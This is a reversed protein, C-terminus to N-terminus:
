KKGIAERWKQIFALRKDQQLNDLLALSVPIPRLADGLQKKLTGLSNGEVDERVSALGAKDAMVTQGRKSLLYDLWVKSANPHAAKESIFSIRSIVKTYDTPIAIGISPDKKARDDAYSGIINYGILNEGSSVREMMTGTSTQLVLGGKAIEALDKFYNPDDQDDAVALMFGVGSKEVDYTTVKSRFRDADGSILKALEGHTHAMEDKKILRTNYIFVIPEYTTGYAKEDWILNAPLAAIDPTKYAAAYSKALKMAGSMDSSWVVDASTGGSAQESIYRSYLETSNMDNYEIDIKPYLTKFDDVVPKAFKIDTTSYLVVKGEKAAADIIKQYDAPYGEPVQQAWAPLAAGAALAAVGLMLERRRFQM